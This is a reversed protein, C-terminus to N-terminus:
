SPKAAPGEPSGSLKAIAAYAARTEAEKKSQGVGRGLELGDFEVIAEFHKAHDPGSQNTIRYLPNKGHREQIMEQLMGKPNDADPSAELQALEPQLQALVFRRAAEFGADLYIAGIVSEFADALNSTRSRGGSTEEGKGLHLYDGLLLARALHCLMHRNAFRARMKTLEGEDAHPFRDFVVETLALQLVADGFFELRQNDTTPKPVTSKNPSSEHLVSRHTLAESLLEARRFQHGLREELQKLDAM